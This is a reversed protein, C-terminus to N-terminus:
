QRNQKIAHDEKVSMAFPTFRIQLLYLMLCLLIHLYISTAGSCLRTFLDGIMMQGQSSGLALPNPPRSYKYTVM